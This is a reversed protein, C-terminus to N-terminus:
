SLIKSIAYRSVNTEIRIHYKLNFYHSIPAEVFAQRLKTFALKAKSILFGPEAEVNKSNLPFDHNKSKVLIKFKTIKAQNKKKTSSIYNIVKNNSVISNDNIRIETKKLKAIFRISKTTKLM